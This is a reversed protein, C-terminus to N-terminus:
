LRRRPTAAMWGPGRAAALPPSTNCALARGGCVANWFRWLEPVTEGWHRRAQRWAAGLTVLVAEEALVPLRELRDGLQVALESFVGLLLEVGQRHRRRWDRATSHPVGYQAAAKAMGTGAINEALAPGVVEVADLRREHVFDPLLAHTRECSRCIARRVWLRYEDGTERVWRRYWCWGVLPRVCDPCELEPVEVQKAAVAYEAV